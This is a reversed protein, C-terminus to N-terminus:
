GRYTFLAVLGLIAVLWCTLVVLARVVSRPGNGYVPNIVPGEPEKLM